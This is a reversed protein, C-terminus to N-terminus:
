PLSQITLLKSPIILNCKIRDSIDEETINYTTSYKKIIEFFQTTSFIYHGCIMILEIKNYSPDYNKPTWKVWNKSYFCLEFLREILNQDDHLLDLITCTEIQGLKPAINIADVGCSMRNKIEEVLLYDANHEKSLKGFDHVIEVMNRLRSQNYKGGSKMNVLDISIGSQVVVFKIASFQNTSLRIKLKNLFTKIESLDFKRIAEETGVEFKMQPNIKSCYLILDITKQTGDDLDPYKKWPDIHIIDFYKLDNEFSNIGDDEIKGQGPGGHDREIIIENNKSRVYKSFTKTDWNNVYGGNYDVQRRSPIFGFTIGYINNFDLVADVVNKSMPGLYYKINDRM